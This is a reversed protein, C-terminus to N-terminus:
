SPWTTPAAPSATNAQAKNTSLLILMTAAAIYGSKKIAQKRNMKTLEVTTNKEKPKPSM